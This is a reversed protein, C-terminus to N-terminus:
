SGQRSFRGHRLMHAQLYVADPFLEVIYVRRDPDYGYSRPLYPLVEVQTLM